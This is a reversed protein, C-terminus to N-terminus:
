RKVLEVRRNKARGNATDNSAVPAFFGVGASTLRSAAVGHQQVLASVVAKARRQSLDVNHAETGQNDTHGVIMINLDPRNGLLETIELLTENSEAKLEDSDTDFYVGYIAIHGEADIGKAMAEANVTVMGTDMAESEVIELLTVPQKSLDGFGNDFAVMVAVHVPAGDVTGAAALYRVDQPIDFASGSTRSSKIQTDEHFRLWQFLTGCDPEGCEYLVEFGSDQLASRYNRLIELSSRGEPGRYLIRTIKGELVQKQEPVRNGEADKVSPGTPLVFDDFDHVEYGDIFSGEYRTVLAHDQTGSPDQQASAVSALAVALTLLALKGSPHSARDAPRM